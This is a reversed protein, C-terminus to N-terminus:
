KASVVNVYFVLDGGTPDSAPKTAYGYEHPIYIALKDGVHTGAIGYTWGPIVGSLPFEIPQGGRSFTGDFEKGDSAKWGLYHANVTENATIEPGSGAELVQVHIKGDNSWDGATFTPTASSIDVTGAGDPVGAVHTTPTPGPTVTGTDQKTEDTKNADTDTSATNNGAINVSVLAFTVVVAFAAVLCGAVTIVNRTRAKKKQAAEFKRLNELEIAATKVAKKKAM